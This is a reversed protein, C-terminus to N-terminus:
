GFMDVHTWPDYGSSFASQDFSASLVSFKKLNAATCCCSISEPVRSLYSQCPMVLDAFRSRYGTTDVSGFLVPAYQPSPSTLCLCCLNFLYLLHEHTQFFELGILFDILDISSETSDFDSPSNVRLYNLLAVYEDRCVNENVSAVWFQLQFTSYLLGFQRLGVETLRKFLILPDFTALGKIIESSLSTQNLVEKLLYQIFQLGEKVFSTTAEAATKDIVAKKSRKNEHVVEASLKSAIAVNSTLRLRIPFDEETMFKGESVKFGFLLVWSNELSITERQYCRSCLKSIFRCFEGCLFFTADRRGQHNVAFSSVNLFVFASSVISVLYM